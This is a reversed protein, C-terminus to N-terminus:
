PLTRLWGQRLILELLLLVLAPAMVMGALERSETFTEVEYKSKELQDIEDYIARLSEPNDARFFKGGTTDAIRQLSELDLASEQMLVMNNGYLDPVRVPVPGPRGMGITYVRIGLAKAAAAATAPDIQGANNVGDTILIVIRSSADSSKLMNAANALGMGIATGDEINLEPALKTEDLLRKLVRHDVTPPSQHFANAAFIVLGIRDHDREDIFDGIVSKAAELRNQPEFDLAAMSGSIDLALAIDVGEGSVIEQAQVWQPRAMGLIMAVLVLTRLFSPLWRLRQRLSKPQGAVAGIDSYRLTAYNAPGRRNRLVLWLIPLATLLLLMWPYAFEFSTTM